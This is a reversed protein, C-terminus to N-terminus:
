KGLNSLRGIASPLTGELENLYLYLSTLHTLLGIENPLQGVLQSQAADIAVISGMEDCTIGTFACENTEVLEDWRPNIAFLRGWDDGNCAYFLTMLAHRQVLRKEDVPTTSLTSDQFVLWQLSKMQPLNPLAFTWPESYEGLITRFKVFREEYALIPDITTQNPRSSIVLAVIGVLVSFVAFIGWHLLKKRKPHSFERAQRDSRGLPGGAPYYNMGNTTLNNWNSDDRFGETISASASSRQRTTTLPPPPSPEENVVVSSQNM